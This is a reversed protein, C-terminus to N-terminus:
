VVERQYCQECYITEPRVPAYLTEFENPCPQDGHFHKVTNKYIGNESEKETM